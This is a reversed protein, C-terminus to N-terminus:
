TSHAGKLTCALATVVLRALSVMNAIEQCSTSVSRNVWEEGLLLIVLQLQLLQDQNTLYQPHYHYQEKSCQKLCLQISHLYLELSHLYLLIQLSYMNLTTLHVELSCQRINMGQNYQKWLNQRLSSILLTLLWSKIKM